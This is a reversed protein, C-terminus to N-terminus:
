SFYIYVECTQLSVTIHFCVGSNKFYYDAIDSKFILFGGNCCVVESSNFIVKTAYWPVSSLKKVTSILKSQMDFFLLCSRFQQFYSQNCILCFRCEYERFWCRFNCFNRLQFYRPKEMIILVHSFHMIKIPKFLHTLILTFLFWFSLDVSTLLLISCYLFDWSYQARWLFNNNAIIM